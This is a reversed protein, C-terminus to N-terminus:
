CISCIGKETKNGSKTKGKVHTTDNADSEETKVNSIDANVSLRDSRNPLGDSSNLVSAISMDGTLGALIKEYDVDTINGSTAQTDTVDNNAAVTCNSWCNESLDACDLDLDGEMFANYYYWYVEVCHDNWLAQWEASYDYQTLDDENLETNVSPCSQDNISSLDYNSPRCYDHMNEILGMDGSVSNNVIDSNIEKVQSLAIRAFEGKNDSLYCFGDSTNAVSKEPLAVCTEVNNIQMLNKETLVQGSNKFACTDDKVDLNTEMKDAIYEGNSDKMQKSTIIENSLLSIDSKSEISSNHHSFDDENLMAVANEENVLATGIEENVAIPLLHVMDARVYDPYKLAWAQWIAQDGKEAWINQWQSETDLHCMESDSHSGNRNFVRKLVVKKRHNQQTRKKKNDAQFVFYFILIRLM